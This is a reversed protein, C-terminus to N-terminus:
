TAKNIARKTQSRPLSLMLSLISHSETRMCRFGPRVGFSAYHRQIMGKMGIQVRADANGKCTKRQGSDSKCTNEAKTQLTCVKFFFSRTHKPPTMARDRDRDTQRDRQRDTQRDTERDRQRQRQRESETNTDHLLSQNRGPARSDM